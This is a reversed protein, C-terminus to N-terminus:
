APREPEGADDQDGEPSPLPQATPDPVIGGSVLSLLPLHRTRVSPLKVESGDTLVARAKSNEGIAIGKLESWAVSRASTVTRVHLGTSDATTSTRVVWVIFGIPLLYVTLTWPASLAFPAGCFMAFVAALIATRPMKFIAKPRRATQEGDPREPATEPARDAAATDAQEGAREATSADHEASDTPM